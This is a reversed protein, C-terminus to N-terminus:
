SAFHQALSGITPHDFLATPELTTSLLDGLSSVLDVASLSDLGAGMLPADHAVWTGVLNTVTKEVIDEVNGRAMRCVPTSLGTQATRHNHPARPATSPLMGHWPSSAPRRTLRMRLPIMQNKRNVGMPCPAKSRDRRSLILRPSSPLGSSISDVLM